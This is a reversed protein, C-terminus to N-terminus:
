SNLIGSGIGFELVIPHDTLTVNAVNAVGFDQVVNTGLTPDYLKIPMMEGTDLTISVPRQPPAIPQHTDGNWVKPENWLVLDFVGSAKEFLMSHGNGPMGSIFYGLSGKPGGPVDALISTLNHLDTAAEKPTGDARFLGFHDGCDTASTGEDLLEYIYTRSVGQELGDMVLNLAYNGQTHEDVGGWWTTDAPMTYYGTETVVKHPPQGGPYQFDWEAKMARGPQEGNQPYPHANAYDSYGLAMPAAPGAWSSDYVAVGALSPAGHIGAYLAQQAAAAVPRYSTVQSPNTTQGNYTMPYFNPENTGEVADLAWPALAKVQQAAAVDQAINVPNAPSSNPVVMNFGIGRDALMKLTGLAVGNGPTPLGDRIHKIGLFSLADAVQGVDSYPTDRYSLHTNVGLSSLLHWARKALHLAM